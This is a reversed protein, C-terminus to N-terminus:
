VGGDKEHYNFTFYQKLKDLLMKKARFLRTRVNSESINLAKAIDKYSLHGSYNLIFIDRYKGDLNKIARKLEEKLEKYEYSDSPNQITDAVNNIRMQIDELAIVNIDKKTKNYIAKATNSTIVSIWSELKSKDQLRDINKFVKLFTEQTCDEALQRSQLIYYSIRYVKKYYREYILQYYYEQDIDTNFSLLFLM